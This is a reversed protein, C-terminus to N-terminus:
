VKREPRLVTTVFNLFALAKYANLKTGYDSVEGHLIAHRNPAVSSRYGLEGREKENAYLPIERQTLPYLFVAKLSDPDFKQVYTATQPRGTARDKGYVSLGTQEKWIGDAASLFPPICLAWIGQKHATFAADLVDKRRPFRNVIRARTVSLKSRHFSILEDNVQAVNGVKVEHALNVVDSPCLDLDIFWGEKALIMLAQREGEPLRRLAELFELAIPKFSITLQRIREQVDILSRVAARINSFAEPPPLLSSISRQINQALEVTPRVHDFLNACVCDRLADQMPSLRQLEDLLLNRGFAVQRAIRQISEVIPAAPRLAREICDHFGRISDQLGPQDTVKM